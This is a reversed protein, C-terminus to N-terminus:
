HPSRPSVVGPVFCFGWGAGPNKIPKAIIYRICLGSKPPNEAQTPRDTFRVDIALEFLLSEYLETRLPAFSVFMVLATVGCVPSNAQSHRASKVRTMRLPWENAWSTWLATHSQNISNAYSSKLQRLTSLRGLVDLALYYDEAEEIGQEIIERLYYAKTRGTREALHNLRRETEPALRISTPM